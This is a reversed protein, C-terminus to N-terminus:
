NKLLKLAESITIRNGEKYAVVFGKISEEKMVKKAAEVSSFKGASYRYWGDGTMEVIEQRGNYVQKLQADSVAKNDALFQISLFVDGVNQAKTEAINEEPVLEESETGIVEVGNEAMEDDAITAVITSTVAMGVAPGAVNVSQNDLPLAAILSEDKGDVSVSDVSPEDSNAVVQEEAIVSEEAISSGGEVVKRIIEYEKELGEQQHKQALEILNVSENLNAMNDSKRYLKRAKKNKEKGFAYAYQLDTAYDAIGLEQLAEIKNNYAKHKKNYGDHLYVAASIKIKDVKQSLKSIKRMKIRGDSNQLESIEAEIVGAGKLLEDGKHILKDAKAIARIDRDAFQLSVVDEHSQGKGAISFLVLLAGVCVERRLLLNIMLNKM